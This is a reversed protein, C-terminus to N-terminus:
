WPPDPVIRLVGLQRVALSVSELHDGIAALYRGVAIELAARTAPREFNCHAHASRRFDAVQGLEPLAPPDYFQGAADRQIAAVKRANVSDRGATIGRILRIRPTTDFQPARRLIVCRKTNPKIRGLRLIERFGLM